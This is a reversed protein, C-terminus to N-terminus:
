AIAEIVSRAKLACEEWEAKPDCYATLASGALVKLTGKERDFFASRIVVNFDGTGDPAFFGLTGSYLGRCQDEAEDILQMARIKPAGTMSAMPFAALLADYPTRGPALTAQVTSVMQHVSPYSRVACLEPVAVSRSAAVRSLDHRMVDLAMVNEAREKADSALERALRADEDPDSSRPRTGKMPEGVARDGQFALFREPSACLVFQEGNRYFASYPADARQLMRDFAAYPDWEAVTSSHQICYNVEYIDGRRIHALLMEANRLYATRDTDTTWPGVAGTDQAPAAGFLTDAVALGEEEHEPHLHIFVKGERWEVVTRPVFWREAPHGQVDAHRSSLRELTNRREYSLHGFTWDPVRGYQDFLPAALEAHSGVALVARDRVRSYLLTGYPGLGAPVPDSAKDLRITRRMPSFNDM